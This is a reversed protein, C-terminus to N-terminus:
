PLVIGPDPDAIITAMTAVKGLGIGSINSVSRVQILKGGPQDTIRWRRVFDTVGDANPDPADFYGEADADLSGGAVLAAYAGSRLEELKATALATAQTLDEATRNQLMGMGVVQGLSLAVLTLIFIAVLSEILTFGADHRM